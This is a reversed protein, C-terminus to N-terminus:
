RAPEPANILVRPLEVSWRCGVPFARADDCLLRAGLLKAFRWAKSLGVGLGRGAQRGSFFPSFVLRRIEPSVGIGNDEVGLALFREGKEDVRTSAFLVVRGTEDEVDDGLTEFRRKLKKYNLADTANKGFADLIVALMSEDVIMSVDNLIETGSIVVEIDFAEFRERERATWEDFFQRASIANREPLPPRALSRISSIMEYARCTQDIIVSLARRRDANTEDRLLTQARGSIVALPNNLEHGIGAAFEVMADFLLETGGSDEPVRLSSDLSSNEINQM